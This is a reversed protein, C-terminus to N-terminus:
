TEQMKEVRWPWLLGSCVDPSALGLSSDTATQSSPFCPIKQSLSCLPERERSAEGRHELVKQHILHSHFLRKGTAARLAALPPGARCPPPLRASAAPSPFLLSSGSRGPSWPERNEASTWPPGSGGDLLSWSVQSPLLMLCRKKVLSSDRHPHSVQLAM